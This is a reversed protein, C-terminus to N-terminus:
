EQDSRSKKIQLVIQFAYITVPIAVTCFIAATLFDRSAPSGIIAAALASVYLGIILLLGIISFLRKWNM